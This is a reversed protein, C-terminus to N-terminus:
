CLRAFRRNSEPWDAGYAFYALAGAALSWLVGAPSLAHLPPAADSPIITLVAGALISAIALWQYLRLGRLVRTQPEGRYHEEVFRELGSLVLYAGAVFSLPAGAIWARLLLAAICLNIVISYVATAHLPVGSLGAIRVIRSRPHTVRMGIAETTARGHCCGQVICRLRGMAQIVPAAVAYAALLLLGSRHVFSMTAITAIGGLIGGFYGYPRLLASSGEIWQAWLAAGVIIGMAILVISALFRQGALATVIAIGAAVAAGAYVGHNILRLSGIRWERWSAALREAGRMMARWVADIKLFVVGLVLGAVVDAIAHMGTTVCSVAIALVIPWQLVRTRPFARAYLDMTLMPWIVHFAPLATSPANFSREWELMAAFLTSPRGQAFDFPAPKPEFVIPIALYVLASGATAIWARITLARLDRNTAAVLPAFVVIPYALFYVIETWGIVAVRADWSSAVTMADAPSGLRNVAEYVVYWPLLALFFFSIRAPMSPREDSGTALHLVAAPRAGFLQATREHEFGWVFAICALALVPTVIWVGAANRMAISLGGSVFVSGIYLPHAVIAYAGSSVFRRPPFPSMPWGGGKMRLEVIAAVIMAGGFWALTVGIRPSGIDPLDFRRDLVVAWAALLLPLVVVFAFAYALQGAARTEIPLSHSWSM